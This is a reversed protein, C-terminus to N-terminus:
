ANATAQPMPSACTSQEGGIRLAMRGDQRYAKRCTNLSAMGTSWFTVPRGAAAAPRLKRLVGDVRIFKSCIAGRPKWSYARTKRQHAEPRMANISASIM